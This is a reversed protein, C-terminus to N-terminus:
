WNNGDFRFIDHPWPSKKGMYTIYISFFLEGTKVDAYERLVNPSQANGSADALFYHGILVSNINYVDNSM